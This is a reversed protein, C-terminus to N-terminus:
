PNPFQGTRERDTPKRRVCRNWCPSVSGLERRDTSRAILERDNAILTANWGPRLALAPEDRKAHFPRQWRLYHAHEHRHSRRQSVGPNWDDSDACVVSVVNQNAVGIDLASSRREPRRTM